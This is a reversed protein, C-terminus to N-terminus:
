SQNMVSRRCPMRGMIDQDIREIAECLGLYASFGRVRKGPIARVALGANFNSVQRYTVDKNGCAKIFGELASFYARGSPLILPASGSLDMVYFHRRVKEPFSLLTWSPLVRGQPLIVMDWTGRAPASYERGILGQRRERLEWASAKRYERLFLAASRRDWDELFAPHVEINRAGLGDLHRVNAFLDQAGHPYVTMTTSMAVRAKQLVSIARCVRQYYGARAGPRNVRATREDGDAGVEVNVRHKRFFAAKSADLLTANSQVSVYRRPFAARVAKIMQRTRDWELLPEGGSLIFEGQRALGACRMANSFVADSIVARQTKHRFFCYGCRLNCRDTVFFWIHNLPFKKIAM